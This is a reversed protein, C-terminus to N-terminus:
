LGKPAIKLTSLSVVRSQGLITEPLEVDVAIRYLRSPMPDSLRELDPNPDPAKYIAVTRRWNLGTADDTGQDSGEKLPRASAAIALQTQAVLLGRSWEEAASANRLSGGFIGFLATGVLALIVFAALVEILSFGSSRERRLRRNRTRTM